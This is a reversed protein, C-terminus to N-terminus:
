QGFTQSAWNRMFVRFQRAIPTLPTVSHYALAIPREPLRSDLRLISLRGDVVEKAFYSYPLVTLLDENMLFHVVLNRSSVQTGTEIKSIGLSLLCAEMQANLLSDVPHALWRYETLEDPTVTARSSLPHNAGAFVETRDQILHEYKVLDSAQLIEAPVLALDLHGSRLSERLLDANATDLDLRIREHQARFSSLPEALLSDAMYPTAGVRLRGVKKASVATALDSALDFSRKMSSGHEFIRSGIETLAIGNRNRTMLQAGIRAELLKLSRSLSPQSVGLADAAAGFSGEEVITVFHILHAPNTKM